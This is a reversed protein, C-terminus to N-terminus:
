TEKDVNGEGDGMMRRGRVEGMETTLEEQGVRRGM